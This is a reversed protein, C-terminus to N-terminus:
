RIISTETGDPEEAVQNFATGNEHLTPRFYRRIPRYPCLGDGNEDPGVALVSPNSDAYCWAEVPQHYIRIRQISRGPARVM